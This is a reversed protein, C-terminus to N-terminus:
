HDEEEEEARPKPADLEPEPEPPKEFVISGHGTKSCLFEWVDSIVSVEMSEVSLLRFTPFLAPDVVTREFAQWHNFQRQKVVVFRPRQRVLSLFGREIPHDATALM